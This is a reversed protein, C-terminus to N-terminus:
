TDASFTFGGMSDSRLTKLCVKISNQILVASASCSNNIGGLLWYLLYRYHRYYCLYDHVPESISGKIDEFLKRIKSTKDWQLLFYLCNYLSVTLAHRWRADWSGWCSWATQPFESLLWNQLVAYPFVLCAFSSTPSFIHSTLSLSLSPLCNFLLFTVIQCRAWNIYDSKVNVEYTTFWLMLLSSIFKKINFGIGM